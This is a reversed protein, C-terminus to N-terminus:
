GVRRLGSCCFSTKRNSGGVVYPIGEYKLREETVTQFTGDEFSPSKSSDTLYPQLLDVYFMTGYSYRVGGNKEVAIPNSYSVKNGGSREKAFSEALAFSYAKGNKAM